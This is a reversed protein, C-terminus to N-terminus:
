SRMEKKERKEESGKWGSEKTRESMKPISLDENLICIYVNKRNQSSAFLERIFTKINSNTKANGLQKENQKM